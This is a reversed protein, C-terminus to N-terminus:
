NIKKKYIKEASNVLTFKSVASTNALSEKNGLILIGGAMLSNSLKKSIEEHLKPNCYILQNRCFVLKYTSLVEDAIFNSYSHLIVSLPTNKEIIIM